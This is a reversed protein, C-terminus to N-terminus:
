SISVLAQMIGGERLQTLQEEDRVLIAGCFALANFSIGQWMEATRPVMLMWDPTLLLNYPSDRGLALAERLVRYYELLRNGAMSLDDFLGAPLQLVAHNFALGEYRQPKDGRISRLQQSFPTEAFPQMPLPVLQLHKHPQSAGATEGGNYFALGPLQAMVEALAAFDRRNILDSQAEFERTVILLHQKVVNFKNLLCRHYDGVDGVYLAEEYPLFPNTNHSGARELRARAEDKRKLNDLVRVLYKLGGQELVQAETPISQLAGCAIAARAISDVHDKFNSM